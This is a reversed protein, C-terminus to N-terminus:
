DRSSALFDIIMVVVLIGFFRLPKEFFNIGCAALVIGLVGYMLYKM